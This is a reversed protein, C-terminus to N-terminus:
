QATHNAEAALAPALTPPIAPLDAPSPPPITEPAAKFDLIEVDEGAATDALLTVHFRQGDAALTGIPLGPPILGGDGSTVVDQGSKLTARRDLIEIIPADSNDGALLAHAGSPEITVPIRSSLDKLPIVWATRQGALFIRGVLGGANMVAQGPRVGNEKGADLILTELFPQGTSGLVHALVFNTQRPPVEHLLRQYSNVRTQLRIAADQWQRLRANEQKLQMNQAYLRFVDGLNSVFRNTEDLPARLGSLAPAAWDSLRARIRDAFDTTRGLTLLVLAVLAWILLSIQTGNRVRAIKWPLYAM